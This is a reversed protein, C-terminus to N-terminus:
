LEFEKLTFFEPFNSVYAGEPFKTRHVVIWFIYYINLFKPQRRDQKFFYFIKKM